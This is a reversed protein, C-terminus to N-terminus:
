IKALVIKAMGDAVEALSKLSNDIRVADNAAVTPAVARGADREDREKIERLMEQQVTIQEAPTLLSYNGYLQEIRRRVRIEPSVEVFFKVLADPFVVTGMDRGEAVLNEGAFADRQVSYLAERVQRHRSCKSTAESVEPTSVRNGLDKGDVFISGYRQGNASVLVLELQHEAILKTLAFADDPPVGHELSLLGVARYVLGTSLHVFGLTEALRRSISTKGSGALGDVTVVVRAKM